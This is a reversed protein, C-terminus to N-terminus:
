SGTSTYKRVGARWGLFSLGLFVFGALPTLPLLWAPAGLPDALGLLALVPFYAVCGIPVVFILFSRFWREYISLPYQAAQVGGYTLLNMAELSETTWFSLVGQFVMLGFFLAVGGVITWVALAVSPAGWHFDLSATAIATVAIGQFFRGARNFRFDHGILQVTATRPRLLIRDFNGTKIFESGLVDFGRSLFDALSFSISVIGFFMAVDGFRWGHVAGFRDFLAWIAVIDLMTVSFQGGALLLVNGPYQMQARLSASFYRGLLRLANMNLRGADFPTEDRADDV